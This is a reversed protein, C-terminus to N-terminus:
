DSFFRRSSEGRAALAKLEEVSQALEQTRSRLENFLRVNEIAIVAQDAFTKLLAIQKESFPCAETRRILIVGIPNGERMLPVALTTRIGLRQDVVWLDPHELECQEAIHTHQLTQGDLIACGALFSRSIPWTEGVPLIPSVVGHSVVKRVM